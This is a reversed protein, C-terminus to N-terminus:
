HSLDSPSKSVDPYEYQYETRNRQSCSCIPLPFLQWRNAAAVIVKRKIEEGTVLSKMYRSPNSKSQSTGRWVKWRLDCMRQFYHCPTSSWQPVASVDKMWFFLSQRSVHKARQQLWSIFRFKGHFTTRVPCRGTFKPIRWQTSTRRWGRSVFM